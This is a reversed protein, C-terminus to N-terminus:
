RDEAMTFLVLLASGAVVLYVGFDFLLPTGLKLEGAVLTPISGGWVASLYPRGQLMGPLGSLLALLLGAGLLRQPDVRLARRTVPVGNAVAHLAVACAAVLGGIFGGGPENHGRLLLILSFALQLPVILRASTRVILSDM